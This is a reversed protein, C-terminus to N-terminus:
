EKTLWPGSNCKKGEGKELESVIKHQAVMSCLYITAPRCEPERTENSGRGKQRTGKIALSTCKLPLPSPHCTCDPVCFLSQSRPRSGQSVLGWLHPLAYGRVGRDKRSVDPTRCIPTTRCHWGSLQLPLLGGTVSWSQAKNVAYKLRMKVKKRKEEM